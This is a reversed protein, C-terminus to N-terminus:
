RSRQTRAITYTIFVHWRCARVTKTISNLIRINTNNINSHFAGKDIPNFIWKPNEERNEATNQGCRSSNLRWYPLDIRETSIAATKWRMCAYCQRCQRWCHFRSRNHAPLLLDAVFQVFTISVFNCLLVIRRPMSRSIASDFKRLSFILINRTRTMWETRQM